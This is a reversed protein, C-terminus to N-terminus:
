SDHVEFAGNRAPGFGCIWFSDLVLGFRPSVLLLSGVDKLGFSFLLTPFLGCLKSAMDALSFSAKFRLGLSFGFDHVSRAM